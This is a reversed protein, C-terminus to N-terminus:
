EKTFREILEQHAPYTTALKSRTALEFDEFEFGPAVTCGVLIFSNKDDVEAAFWNGARIMVQFHEGKEFNPGIKHQILTGTNAEIEYVTASTGTHFHWTEDSALCHFNSYESGKLLFYISTSFCRTSSYRDPLASKAIVETARYTEKFHGGEPHSRLQLQEIWYDASKM